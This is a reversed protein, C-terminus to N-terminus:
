LNTLFCTLISGIITIFQNVKNMVEYGNFSYFFLRNYFNIVSLYNIVALLFDIFTFLSFPSFNIVTVTIRIIVIIATTAVATVFVAKRCACKRNSCGTTCMCHIFGLIFEIEKFFRMFEIRVM